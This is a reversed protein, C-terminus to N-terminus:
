SREADQHTFMHLDIFGLLVKRMLENERLTRDLKAQLTAENREQHLIENRLVLAAVDHQPAFAKNGKGNPGGNTHGNGNDNRPRLPLRLDPKSAARPIVPPEQQAYRTPTEISRVSKIDIRFSPTVDRSDIVGMGANFWLNEESGPFFPVVQEDPPVSSM